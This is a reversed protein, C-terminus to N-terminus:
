RSAIKAKLQDMEKEMSILYLTLEEVKKLLLANMEGVNVGNETVEKATPMDPLHNNAQIYEDVQKLSPLQYDHKFVYDPWPWNGVLKVKLEECIIKGSVALKYDALTNVVGIGVKGNFISFVAPDTWTGLGSQSSCTYVSGINANSNIKLVNTTLANTTITSTCQLENQVKIGWHYITLPSFTATDEDESIPDPDAIDTLNSAGGDHFYQFVFPQSSNDIKIGNANPGTFGIKGNIDLIQSIKAPDTLGIGVRDNFYNAIPYTSNRAQYIGYYISGDKKWNEVYGVLIDSDYADIKLLTQISPKSSIHLKATPGTTGIGIKAVPNGSQTVLEYVSCDTYGPSNINNKILNQSQTSYFTFLLCLSVLITKKTTKM